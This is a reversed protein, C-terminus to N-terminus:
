ARVQQQQHEERAINLENEANFRSPPREHVRFFVKANSVISCLVSRVILM